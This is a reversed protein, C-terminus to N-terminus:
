DLLGVRAPGISISNSFVKTIDTIRYPDVALAFIRKNGPSLRVGVKSKGSSLSIDLLDPIMGGTRDNGLFGSDDDGINMPIREVEAVPRAKLLITSDNCRNWAQMVSQNCCDIFQFDTNDLRGLIM